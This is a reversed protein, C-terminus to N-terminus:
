RLKLRTVGKGGNGAGSVSFTHSGALWFPMLNTATLPTDETSDTDSLSSGLGGFVDIGSANNFVIAHGATPADDGDPDFAVSGLLGNIIITESYNGDADAEWAIELVRIPAYPQESPM